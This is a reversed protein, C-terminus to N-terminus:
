QSSKNGQPLPQSGAKELIVTVRVPGPRLIQVLPDPVFANTVFTSREMSGSVDVPDTTAAEVADVRHRPGSILVMPPDASVSAIRYGPVFTGIVRPKVPVQRTEGLDFTLHVQSPVIQQVELDRPQRVQRATLDFTREGPKVGSLDVEVHVDQARMEHILREPGHMRVQAEPINVSGIELNAPINHFEIPVTVEVVAPPDKALAWWLGAALALSVLKYGFNAFVYRQLLDIM